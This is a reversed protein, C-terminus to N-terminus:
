DSHFLIYTLSNEAMWLLQQRSEWRSIYKSLRYQLCYPGLNPTTQDPNMNNKNLMKLECLYFQLKNLSEVQPLFIQYKKSQRIPIKKQKKTMQNKKLLIEPIGDSHWVTQNWIPGSMKEPRIQTWITQLPQNDASSM